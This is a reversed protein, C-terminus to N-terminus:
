KEELEKLLRYLWGAAGTYWSWGGRGEYGKATYVDGSLVYPENKYKEATRLKKEEPLVIKLLEKLTDGYESESPFLKQLYRLAWLYWLVGHTYQGGNERVGPVYGKIYGPDNEDSIFSPTFLKILGNKEDVLHEKVAFVSSLMMRKRKESRYEPIHYYCFVSFAQPLIDISCDSKMTIDNGLAVKNSYYARPFWKGNFCNDISELLKNLFGRVEGETQLPIIEMKLARYLCIAGFQSLWLSEGGDKGVLNMGDNWDGSGMLALGHEGVGRKIFLEVCKLLHERLPAKKRGFFYKKYAETAKNKLSEGELYPLALDLVSRDGTSEIYDYVAWLLWLYDDSCLSRVGSHGFSGLNHWWHLVDGEEFQHCACRIIVSRTIKPAFDLCCLSDQLQDRFGFAGSSQYYGTKALIRGFLCQYSLWYPFIKYTSNTASLNFEGLSDFCFKSASAACDEFFSKSMLDFHKKTAFAGLIFKIEREKKLLKEVTIIAGKYLSIDTDSITGDAVCSVFGTKRMESVDVSRYFQVSKNEKTCVIRGCDDTRSAMVAEIKYVLKCNYMGNDVILLKIEKYGWQPHVSVKVSYESNNYIGKYVCYGNKYVREISSGILDFWEGKSDKLLLQEGKDYGKPTNKWATIRKQSSNHVWTYGLDRDTVVSGSTKGSIVNSWVPYSDSSKTIAFGNPIFVGNNKDGNIRKIKQPFVPYDLDSRISRNNYYIHACSRMLNRSEDNKSIPHIGPSGGLLFGAGSKFLDYNFSEMDGRNYGRDDVLIVLDYCLGSLFHLKYRSLLEFYSYNNDSSYEVCMIPDDGSIGYSWLDNLTYRGDNASFGGSSFDLMKDLLANELKQDFIPYSQIYRWSLSLERSLSHSSSIIRSAELFTNKGESYEKAACILATFRKKYSSSSAGISQKVRMVSDFVPYFEGHDISSIYNKSEGDALIQDNADVRETFGVFSFREKELAQRKRRKILLSRTDKDFSYELFLRSFAPHANFNKVNCLMPMFLIEAEVPGNYGNVEISIGQTNQLSQFAFFTISVVSRKHRIIIECHSGHDFYNYICDEPNLDKIQSFIKEGLKVKIVLGSSYLRRDNEAFIFSEEDKMILNCRGDSSSIFASNKGHCFVHDNKEKLLRRSAKENKTIVPLMRESDPNRHVFSDVPVKEQLLVKAAKVNNDKFFRKIFLDSYILNIASVISMGIHHTMYSKVIACGATRKVSCDLAEYFGYKGYMGRKKIGKLNDMVCNPAMKLMLFSSYPSIVLTDENERKLRLEPVGMAKYQYNMMSDFSFYSCESVGFLGGIRSKFKRQREFAFCLSEYEFSDSYVPLLLLPMFYEFCTGSWSVAGIHRDATCLNRGLSNWHSYPILGKSVCYYSTLRCESMYLDYHSNDPRSSQTNYGVYFLGKPRDYLFSFDMAERIVRIRLSLDYIRPDEPCYELIANEIALLMVALNGSDVTSIYRDGIVDLTINNYWNYFNGKYKELKELTTVTDRILSTMKYTSIRGIDRACVVSMLYLGVNTPSSKQATSHCPSLSIYDPPLYNTNQSVNDEFYKFSDKVYEMLTNKVTDSVRVRRKRHTSLLYSILPYLFWILGFLRGPRNKSLILLFAGVVSSFWGDYVYALFGGAGSSSFTKWQLLYKHSVFMRFLSRIIADASNISDKAIFALEKFLNLVNNWLGGYVGSYYNRSFIGRFIQKINIVLDALVPLLLYLSGLLCLSYAEAGSLFIGFFIILFLSIGNFYNIFNNRICFKFVGEIPNIRKIKDRSIFTRGVYSLAQTDGRIWRHRRQFYSITNKPVGDFFVVEECYACRLRSGELIDHSLVSGDRFVDLCVERYADLDILGKGCFMGLGFVDRFVNFAGSQYVERGGAGGILRAFATTSRESLSVGLYPQIVGFGKTVIKQGNRTGVVAKNMPHRMVGILKYLDGFNMSTDADLTILYKINKLSNNDGHVRQPNLNSVSDKAFDCIAGRKRERPIFCNETASYERERVYAFFGGGYQDNLRTLSKDLFSLIAEDKKTEKSNACFLDGILGFYVNKDRKGDPFQRLFCEELSNSLKEVEDASSLLGTIVVCSREDDFCEECKFSLLKRKPIFRSSILNVAFVSSSYACPLLLLQYFFIAGLSFFALLVRLFLVEFLLFVIFTAFYYWKGKPNGMLLEGLPVDEAKSTMILKKLLEEPNKKTKSSLRDLARRYEACSASDMLTYESRHHSRFLRELESFGALYGSFDFDNVFRLSGILKETNNCGTIADNKIELLLSFKIGSSISRFVKDEFLKKSSIVEYFAEVAEKTVEWQCAKLLCECAWILGYNFHLKETKLQFLTKEWYYYNDYIWQENISLKKEVGLHVCFDFLERRARRLDKKIKVSAKKCTFSDSNVILCEKIKAKDM